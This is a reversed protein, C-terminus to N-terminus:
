GHLVEGLVNAACVLYLMGRKLGQFCFFPFYFQMATEVLEPALLHLETAGGGDSVSTSM